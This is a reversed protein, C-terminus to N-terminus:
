EPSMMSHPQSAFSFVCSLLHLGVLTYCPDNDLYQILLHSPHRRWEGIEMGRGAWLSTISDTPSFNFGQFKFFPDLSKYKTKMALTSITKQRNHRTNQHSYLFLNEFFSFSFFTYWYSLDWTLTGKSPGRCSLISREREKKRKQWENKGSM